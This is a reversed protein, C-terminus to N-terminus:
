SLTPSIKKGKERVQFPIDEILPSQDDSLPLPARPASPPCPFRCSEAFGQLCESEQRAKNEVM